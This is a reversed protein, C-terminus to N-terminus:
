CIEFSDDFTSGFRQLESIVNAKQTAYEYFMNRVGEIVSIRLRLQYRLTKNGTLEAENYRNSLKAVEKNLVFVQECARRFLREAVYLDDRLAEKINVSMM